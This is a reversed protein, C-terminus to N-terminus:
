LALKHWSVGLCLIKILIRSFNATFVRSLVSIFLLDVFNASVACHLFAIDPTSLQLASHCSQGVLLKIILIEASLVLSTDVGLRDAESIYVAIQLPSHQLSSINFKRSDEKDNSVLGQGDRENNNLVISLSEWYLTGNSSM